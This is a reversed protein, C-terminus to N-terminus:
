LSDTVRVKKACCVRHLLTVARCQQASRVRTPVALLPDVARVPPQKRLVFRSLLPPAEGPSKPSGLAEILFTPNSQGHGAHPPSRLTAQQALQM